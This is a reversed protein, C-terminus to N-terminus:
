GSVAVLAAAVGDIVQDVQTDTLAVNLFAAEFQSPPLYVGGNLLARHFLAFAELDCEKVEEFRTPVASRAYITFMGGVRVYSWGAYGIADRLGDDLRRGIAELREWTAADIQQLTALGAAVAVPNGSLTGGQYVPGAPALKGMIDARGGFAALPFGGGVVKGLTTLDPRIGYLGQACAPGVRFGTMVEDFILLAGSQETLARMRALWGDAPVILGMNGAVPEVIVAAIRPGHARFAEDLAATDNYPLVMTNAAVAAPIGPSGPIAFTAVGSGAAVLLADHAGHYCGDFKVILDRGTFGRALRVAHMTAETGSSVLRIMEMSPVRARIAEALDVEAATPAGFTSGKKVAECAAEVVKPHAHGLLLAGWSGVLDVYRHGDEDVIEAGEGRAVFPPDGGVARFARVPSNVGGPIVAAARELLKQSRSPM